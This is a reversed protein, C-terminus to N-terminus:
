SSAPSGVMAKSFERAALTRSAVNRWGIFPMLPLNPFITCSWRHSTHGSSDAFCCSSLIGGVALFCMIMGIGPFCPVDQMQWLEPPTQELAQMRHIITEPAQVHKKSWQHSKLYQSSPCFGRQDLYGSQFKELRIRSLCEV